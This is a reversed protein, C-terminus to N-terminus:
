RLTRMTYIHTRKKKKELLLRCVLYALSQLESTHEESRLGALASCARARPKSLTMSREASLRVSPTARRVPRRPTSTTMSLTPPARVPCASAVSARPPTRVESPYEAPRSVVISTVSKIQFCALMLPKESNACDCAILAAAQAMM